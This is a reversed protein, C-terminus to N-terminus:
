RQCEDIAELMQAAAQDAEQESSLSRLCVVPRADEDEDYRIDSLGFVVKLLSKLIDAKTQPEEVDLELCLMDLLPLM